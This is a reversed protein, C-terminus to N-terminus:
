IACTTVEVSVHVLEEHISLSRRVEDATLAAPSVLALICSYCGKGVRWVHLDSIAATPYDTAVVERIEEVVPDDM